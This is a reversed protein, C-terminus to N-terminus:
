QVLETVLKGGPLALLAADNKLRYLGDRLMAELNPLMGRLEDESLEQANHISLDLGPRLGRSVHVTVVVPNASM